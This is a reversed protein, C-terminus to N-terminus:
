PVHSWTKGSIVCFIAVDTVGFLKAIDKKTMCMTNYLSRIIPIDSERLRANPSDSGKADNRRNRINMDSINDAQTGVCLHNPNCCRPNDCTHRITTGSHHGGYQLDHLLGADYAILRSVLIHRRGAKTMTSVRGYGHQKTTGQWDWCEQAGKGYWDIYSWVRDMTWMGRQRKDMREIGDLLM